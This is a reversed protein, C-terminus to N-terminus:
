TRRPSPPRYLAVANDHFVLRLAQSDGLKDAILRLDEAGIPRPARTGPLDSGFLLAGPNERYIAGLAPAPEFDM